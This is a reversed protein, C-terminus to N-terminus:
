TTVSLFTTNGTHLSVRASEDSVGHQEKSTTSEIMVNATVMAQAAEYQPSTKEDLRRIQEESRILSHSTTDISQISDGGSEETM